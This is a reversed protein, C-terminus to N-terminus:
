KMIKKREIFQENALLMKQLMNRAKVLQSRSTSENIGAAAAIEAHSFGDIVYMNFIMKYGEPLQSIKMLLEETSIRDIVSISDDYLEFHDDITETLMKMKQHWKRIALRVIIKRIWGELSGSANYKKISSFVLIFGEQLLDEAEARAPAYRRCVAMMKGAYRQYLAQCAAANRDICLKVLDIDSTTKV